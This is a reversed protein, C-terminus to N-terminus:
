RKPFQVSGVFQELTLPDEENGRSLGVPSQLWASWIRNGDKLVLLQHQLVVEMNSIKGATAVQRYRRQRAAIGNVNAAKDTVLQLPAGYSRELQVTLESAILAAASDLSRRVAGPHERWVLLRYISQNFAAPGFSIYQGLARRQEKVQMWNREYDGVFPVAVSFDGDPSTYRDRKLTGAVSQSPPLSGCSAILLTLAAFAALRTAAVM